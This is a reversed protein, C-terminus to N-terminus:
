EELGFADLDVEWSTVEFILELNYVEGTDEKTSARAHFGRTKIYYNKGRELANDYADNLIKIAASVLMGYSPIGDSDHWKWDLAVMAKHMSEFDFYKIIEDIAQEKNTM